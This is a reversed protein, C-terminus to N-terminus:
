AAHGQALEIAREGPVFRLKACPLSNILQHFFALAFDLGSRSYFPAFTCALFRALAESRSHTLSRSGMSQQCRAIEMLSNFFIGSDFFPLM